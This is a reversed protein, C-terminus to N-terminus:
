FSDEIDHQFMEFTEKAQREEPTLTEEPEEVKEHFSWEPALRAIIEDGRRILVGYGADITEILEAFRAPADAIDIEYLM